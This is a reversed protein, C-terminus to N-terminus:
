NSRCIEIATEVNSQQNQFREMLAKFDASQSLEVRFYERLEPWDPHDNNQEKLSSIRIELQRYSRSEKKFNAADEDPWEFNSFRALGNTTDIRDPEHALLYDVKARWAEALLTQLDRNVTALAEFEPRSQVVLDRMERQFDTKAVLDASATDRVCDALNQGWATGGGAIQLTIAIGLSAVLIRSSMVEAIKNPMARKM